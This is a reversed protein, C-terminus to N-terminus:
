AGVEVNLVGVEGLPRLVPHQGQPCHAAAITFWTQVTVAAPLAALLSGTWAGFKDGDSATEGEQCACFLAVSAAIKARPSRPALRQKWVTSPAVRKAPRFASRDMGGSHCCDLIVVVNVGPKFLALLGAFEDDLMQGDYLCLTEDYGDAEGFSYQQGGHGSYSIVVFDGAEAENTLGIIERRVNELTANENFKLSASFEMGAAESSLGVADNECANLLGPWGNYAEPSVRNLGLHLSFKKM